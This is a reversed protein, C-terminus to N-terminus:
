CPIMKRLCPRRNWKWSIVPYQIAQGAFTLYKILFEWDAVFIMWNKLTWCFNTYHLYQNVSSDISISVQFPGNTRHEIYLLIYIYIFICVCSVINFSILSNSFLVSGNFYHFVKIFPIAVIQNYWNVLGVKTTHCDYISKLLLRRTPKYIHSCFDFITWYHLQKVTM